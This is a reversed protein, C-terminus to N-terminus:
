RGEVEEPSRGVIERYVEPDTAGETALIVVRSDSDLGLQERLRPDSSAALFGAWGASGTDGLVVGPDGDAGEAAQRMADTAARDEVTMFAFAGTGLITWANACAKGVVLGDMVTSADGGVEAARGALASERLCASTEPEVTVVKPHAAGYREWLRACIASALKGSGGPVFLHTPARPLQSAIEEGVLAYGQIIRLPVEPYRRQRDCIVFYGNAEADEFSRQVARDFSGPVRVVEAGFSAIM